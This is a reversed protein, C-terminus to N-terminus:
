SLFCFSYEPNHSFDINACVLITHSCQKGKLQYLSDWFPPKQLVFWFFGKATFDERGDPLEIEGAVLAPSEIVRGGQGPSGLDRGASAEWSRPDRVKWGSLALREATM